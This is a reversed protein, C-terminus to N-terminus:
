RGDCGVEQKALIKAALIYKLKEREFANAIDLFKERLLAEAEFPSDGIAYDRSKHVREWELPAVIIEQPYETYLAMYRAM